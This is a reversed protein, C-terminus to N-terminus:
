TSHAAHESPTMSGPNAAQAADRVFSGWAAVTAGIVLAATPLTIQALLRPLATSVHWTISNPTVLFVALTASVHALVWLALLRTTGGKWLAWPLAVCFVFAWYFAMEEEDLIDVTSQALLPLRAILTALDHTRLAALYHEDYPAGATAASLTAVAVSAM